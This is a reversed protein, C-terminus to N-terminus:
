LNGPFLSVNKQFALLRYYNTYGSFHGKGIKINSGKSIKWGLWKGIVSLSQTIGEM